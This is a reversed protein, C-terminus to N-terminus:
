SCTTSGSSSASCRSASCARSRSGTAGCRSARSCPCSSSCSEWAPCRSSTSRPTASSGSSTRTSTRAAARRSTSSAPRRRATSRRAHPADLHPGARRAADPRLDDGDGWVFIPLRGWTMGPARMTIVTALMNLGLLTMSVGVLAFFAIYADMGMNAQENLPAYGTWGTPFGGFALATMLITGAAMLLWFTLAEIRPFAMRRAGIMLPVFYNAFPGLIGSTMMGMMMTGHLGVLTLYNNGNWALHTPRLLEFRILMANLGGIFIFAGIGLLYQIGVVKHDTCLGFYRGIGQQSRRASRPRSASAHRQLPYNAFGLGVLFGVM